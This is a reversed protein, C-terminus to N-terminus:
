RNRSKIEAKAEEQVPFGACDRQIGSGPDQM